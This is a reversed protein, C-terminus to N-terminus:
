SQINEKLPESIVSVQGDQVSHYFCNPRGTHCAPGTQDVFMLITDDDCDFRFEILKQCNGSTEGKRWLKKRSRSWYCVQNTELTEQIADSNMWALMLVEGTDYQQAIAPVLGAENYNILKAIDANM